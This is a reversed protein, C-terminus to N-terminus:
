HAVEAVNLPALTSLFEKAKGVEFDSGTSEIALFFRDQSAREFGPANFISHYPKPLGNLAFMSIAATFAAFLVTCEFSIPVFSPLSNFPKGGVSMTYDITGTYWQLTFGTFTGVIGFCFILFPVKNCHFGIAESLGHVPFPSYADIKTWGAERTKEAAELLAEASDFEAVVAYPGTPEEHAHSVNSPWGWPKSPRQLRNANRM